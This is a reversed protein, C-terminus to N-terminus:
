PEIRCFAPVRSSYGRSDPSCSRMMDYALSLDHALTAPLAVMEGCTGSMPRSVADLATLLESSVLATTQQDARGCVHTPHVVDGALSKLSPRM